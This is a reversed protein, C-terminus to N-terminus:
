HHDHHLVGVGAAEAAAAILFDAVGIHHLGWPQEHALSRMAAIAARCGTATIPIERLGELSDQKADFDEPSRTSYLVELIVPACLRIQGARVAAAWEEAVTPRQVRVLASKDVIYVGGGFAAPESL